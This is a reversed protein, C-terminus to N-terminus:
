QLLGGQLQFIAFRFFFSDQSYGVVNVHSEGSAGLTGQRCYIELIDYYVGQGMSEKFKGKGKLYRFIGRFRREPLAHGGSTTSASFCVLFPGKSQRHAVETKLASALPTHVLSIYIYIIYM